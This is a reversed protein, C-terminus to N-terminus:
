RPSDEELLGRAEALYALYHHVWRGVGVEFTLWTAAVVGAGALLPLLPSMPGPGGVMFVPYLATSLGFGLVLYTAVLTLCWTDVLHRAGPPPSRFRVLYGLMEPTRVVAHWADRLGVRFAHLLEGGALVRHSIAGTWALGLYGLSGVAVLVSLRGQGLTAATLLVLGALIAYLLAVPLLEVGIGTWRQLQDTTTLPRDSRLQDLHAGLSTAVLIPFLLGLIPLSVVSTLFLTGVTGIGVVVARLWWFGRNEWLGARVLRAPRYGGSAMLQAVLTPADALEEAAASDPVAKAKAPHKM